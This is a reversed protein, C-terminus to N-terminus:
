STAHNLDKTWWSGKFINDASFGPVTLDCEDGHSARWTSCCPCSPTSFLSVNNARVPSLLSHSRTTTCSWLDHVLNWGDVDIFWPTALCKTRKQPLNAVTWWFRNQIGGFGIARGLRRDNRFHNGPICPGYIDRLNGNTPQHFYLTKECFGKTLLTPLQHHRHYPGTM